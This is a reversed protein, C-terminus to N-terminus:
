QSSHRFCALANNCCFPGLAISALGSLLRRACVFVRFYLFIVTCLFVFLVGFLVLCCLVCVFLVCIRVFVCLLLCLVSPLVSYIRYMVSSSNSSYYLM